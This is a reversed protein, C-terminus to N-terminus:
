RMARTRQIPKSLGRRQCEPLTGRAEVEKDYIDWTVIASEADIVRLVGGDEFTLRWGSATRVPFVSDSKRMRWAAVDMSSLWPEWHWVIIQTFCLRGDSPDHVHNVEILAASDRVPENGIPLVAFLLSFVVSMM